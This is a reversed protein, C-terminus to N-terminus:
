KADDIGKSKIEAKNAYMRQDAERLAERITGLNEHRMCVGRAAVVQYKTRTKNVEAIREDFVEFLQNINLIDANRIIVIFEDGGMRGVTGVKGFVQSLVASFDKLLEDGFDHGYKDNTEKLGNVDMMILGYPMGEAEVQDLMLECQRRNALGTLFDNYALQEYLETKGRKRIQDSVISAIDFLMAVVLIMAGYSATGSFMGAALQSYNVLVFRFVDIVGFISMICMGTTFSIYEGSKDRLKKASFILIFGGVFVSYASSLTLMKTLSVIKLPYLVCASAFVLLYIIISVKFTTKWRRSMREKVRTGFYLLVFLPAFYLTTYELYTKAPYSDIFLPLLHQECLSWLGMCTSFCGVCFIEKIRSNSVMLIAAVIITAVGFVLLFIDIVFIFASDKIMNVRATGGNCLLPAELQTVGGSEAVKFVIKIRKGQYNEDLPIFYRGYGMVLKNDYREEGVSFIEQEDLYVHTEAFEVYLRLTPHAIQKYTMKGELVVIDGRKLSPLKYEDINVDGTVEDNITVTWNHNMYGEERIRLQTRVNSTIAIEALILALLILIVASQWGRAKKM